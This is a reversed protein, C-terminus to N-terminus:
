AEAYPTPAVNPDFQPNLGQYVELARSVGTHVPKLEANGLVAHLCYACFNKYKKRLHLKADKTLGPMYSVGAVREIVCFRVTCNACSHKKECYDPYKAKRARAIKEWCSGCMGTTTDISQGYDCDDCVPCAHHRGYGYRGAFPCDHGLDRIAAKRDNEEVESSYGSM